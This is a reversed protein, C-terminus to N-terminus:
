LVRWGAVEEEVEAVVAVTVIAVAVAVADAVVVVERQAGLGCAARHWFGWVLDGNPYGAIDSGSM